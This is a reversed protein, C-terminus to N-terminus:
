ASLGEGNGQGDDVEGAYPTYNPYPIYQSYGIHNIPQAKTFRDKNFQRTIFGAVRHWDCEPEPLVAGTCVPAGQMHGFQGCEWCEQSGVPPTGPTLPYPHQEDPKRNPNTTHWATVQLQYANRGEATDPHQPLAYRLLDGHRLVIARDRLPQGNTTQTRATGRGMGLAGPGAGRLPFMANGRMPGFLNGRGGAGGFPNGIRQPGANYATPPPSDYPRQPTQLHMTALAERIAKTPSAPVRTLRATEEDHSYDAAAEKLESTDLALVAASLEDYTTRLRTRILERVPRPLANYVEGILFGTTDEADRVKSALGTAWKIHSWIQHGGPGDVKKGLDEAKLLWEKLAQIRETKSVKPAPTLPWQLMFAATLHGYTDTENATLANFWNDAVSGYAINNRMCKVKREESTFNRDNIKNDIERLFQGPALNGDKDGEWQLSNNNDTM